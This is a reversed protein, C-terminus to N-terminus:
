KILKSTLPKVSIPWGYTSIGVVNNKAEEIAELRSEPNNEDHEIEVRVQLKIVEIM